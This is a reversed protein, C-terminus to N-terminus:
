FYLAVAFVRWFGFSRRRNGTGGVIIHSRRCSQLLRHREWRRWSKWSLWLVSKCWGNLKHWLSWLVAGVYRGCFECCRTAWRMASLVVHWRGHVSGWYGL